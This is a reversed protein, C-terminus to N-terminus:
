GAIGTPWSPWCPSTSASWTWRWGCRRAQLRAREAPGALDLYAALVARLDPEALRPAQGLLLDDVGLALLAYHVGVLEPLFNAPLRSLALYWCGHLATLPRAGARGPLRRRGPRAPVVGSEEM